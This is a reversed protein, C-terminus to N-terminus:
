NVLLNGNARRGKDVMGTRRILVLIICAVHVVPIHASNSKHSRAQLEFCGQFSFCHFAVSHRVCSWTRQESDEEASGNRLGRCCIRRRHAGGRGRGEHLTPPPPGSGFLRVSAQHIRRVSSRRPSAATTVQRFQSVFLIGHGGRAPVPSAPGSGEAATDRPPSDSAFSFFFFINQM